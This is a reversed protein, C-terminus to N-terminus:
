LGSVVEDDVKSLIIQSIVPDATTIALRESSGRVGESFWKMLFFM